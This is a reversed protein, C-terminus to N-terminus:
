ELNGDSDRTSEYYAAEDPTEAGAAVAGQHCEHQCKPNACRRCEGRRCWETLMTM